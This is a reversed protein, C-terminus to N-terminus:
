VNPMVCAVAGGAGGAGAVAPAEDDDHRQCLINNNLQEIMKVAAKLALACGSPVRDAWFAHLDHPDLDLGYNMRWCKLLEDDTM